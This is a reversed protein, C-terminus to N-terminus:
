AAVRKIKKKVVRPAKRPSEAPGRTSLQQANAVRAAAKPGLIKLEVDELAWTHSVMALEDREHKFAGPADFRGRSRPLRSLFPPPPTEVKTEVFIWCSAEVPATPFSMGGGGGGM